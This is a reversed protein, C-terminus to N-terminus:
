CCVSGFLGFPFKRHCYYSSYKNLPFFFVFWCCGCIQKAIATVSFVAVSNIKAVGVIELIMLYLHAKGFHKILQFRLHWMM